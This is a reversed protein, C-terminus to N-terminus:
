ASRKLTTQPRDVHPQAPTEHGTDIRYTRAQGDTEPRETAAQRMLAQLQRTRGVCSGIQMLAALRGALMAFTGLPATLAAHRMVEGAHAVLAPILRECALSRWFLREAHLGAIFPHRRRRVPGSVVRSEPELVVEAGIATLTAAMDAAALPDGCTPSFGFERVVDARWFGAELMPAAPLAGTVLGGSKRRPVVAVSRGGATRRIGASVPQDRDIESVALPVVAAVGPRTFHRMAATTWQDTAKWGGALVHIVDGTAAAIGATVCGVLGSGRAAEVFAVEERINWPDDYAVALAVIVECDDPRHELVSILTEELSEVDIAPVVVSLRRPRGGQRQMSM